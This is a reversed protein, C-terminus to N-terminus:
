RNVNALDVTPASASAPKLIGECIDGPRSAPYIATDINGLYFLPLAGLRWGESASSRPDRRWDAFKRPFAM